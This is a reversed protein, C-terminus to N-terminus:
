FRAWAPRVPVLRAGGSELPADLTELRVLALAMDGAVSRIEGADNPLATGPAPTAGEVRLPVLRKKLLARYKTRATLEQGVYCGKKFDVGGLEEFGAELLIGKEVEIDRSGDPVGLAIRHRDWAQFEARPFGPPAAGKPVWLRAGMEVLRPDTFALGGAFPAAAGPTGALALGALVGAGWAAFVELEPAEGIAVKARLKYLSLRRKLDDHRAAECELYLVEGIEAIFFEHLFKGQPTLLAAWVVHDSAARMVDNSVLGQLFSRRDAGAVTLLARGPLAVLAATM